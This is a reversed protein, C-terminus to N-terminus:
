LQDPLEVVLLAPPGRRRDDAVPEPDAAVVADHVAEVGAGALDDPGVLDPLRDPGRGAHHVALDREAGVIRGVVQEVCVLALQDPAVRHPLARVRGRAHDAAADVDAGGVAVEVAEALLWYAMSLRDSDSARQNPRPPPGRPPRASVSASPHAVRGKPECTRARRETRM